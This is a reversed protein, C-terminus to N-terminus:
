KKKSKGRKRRGFGPTDPDPEGRATRFARRLADVRAEKKKQLHDLRKSEFDVINDM